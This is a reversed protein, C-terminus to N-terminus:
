RVLSSPIQQNDQVLDLITQPIFACGLMSLYQRFVVSNFSDEM